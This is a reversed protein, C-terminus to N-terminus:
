DNRTLSELEEFVERTADNVRREILGPRQLVLNTFNHRRFMAQLDDHYQEAERLRAQLQNQQETIRTIDNSLMRIQEQQRRNQQELTVKSETLEEIKSQSTTYYFYAGGIIIGLLIVPSMYKSLISTIM